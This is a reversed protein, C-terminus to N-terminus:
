PVTCFTYICQTAFQQTEYHKLLYYMYNSTKVPNFNFQLSYIAQRLQHHVLFKRGTTLM